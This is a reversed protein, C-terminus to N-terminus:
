RKEEHWSQGRSFRGLLCGGFWFRAVVSGKEEPSVATLKQVVFRECIVCDYKWWDCALSLKESLGLSRPRGYGLWAPQVLSIAAAVQEFASPEM